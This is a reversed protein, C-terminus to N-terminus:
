SKTNTKFVELSPSQVAERPLRKEQRGARTTFFDRRIGLRFKGKKLKDM